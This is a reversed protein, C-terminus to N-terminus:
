FINLMDIKFFLFFGEKKGSKEVEIGLFYKMLGLDTM